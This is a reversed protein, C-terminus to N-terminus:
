EEGDLYDLSESRIIKHEPLRVLWKNSDPYHCVESLPNDAIVYFVLNEEGTNIIQHAEGPKFIFADNKSISHEGAEDRAIGSGSIVHYFEWQESHSHYPFAAKGPPVTTIEVDFPHREMLDTSKPDRGLAISISRGSGGFKESEELWAVEEVKDSNVKKM